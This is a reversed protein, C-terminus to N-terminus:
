SSGCGGCGGGGGGCSSGSSSGCSSGGSDSSGGGDSAGAQPFLKKADPYVPLAAGVGYVAALLALDTGGSQPQLSSARDKLGSFLTRLDGVLARGSSTLRPHTAVYTVVVFVCALAGLFGVNSRGRAFAVGIKMGAVLVLLGASWLWLRNRSAKRGADPLLGRRVLGPECEATVAATVAGDALVDAMAAGVGVRAVIARETAKTVRRAADTAAALRDDGEISLAGRDILTLAAVRIAEAAGGRLFAIDLYDSLPGAPNAREGTVRAFWALVTIALGLVGYFALFEPGRLDLPNVM